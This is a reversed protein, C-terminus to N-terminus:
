ATMYRIEISDVNHLSNDELYFKGESPLDVFETPTVFSFSNNENLQEVPSAADPSKIGLREENNRVSM